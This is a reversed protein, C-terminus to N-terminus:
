QYFSRLDIGATKSTIYQITQADFHTQLKDSQSLVCCTNKDKWKENEDTLREAMKHFQELMITEYTLNLFSCIARLVTEPERILQDYVVFCHDPHGRFKMSVKMSKKWWRICDKISRKGNWQTPYRKTAFHLSAVVDKGERLMHIFKNATPGQNISSIYHLHRPTKELVWICSHNIKGPSAEQLTMRDLIELLKKCWTKHGYMKYPNYPSLNEFPSLGTYGHNELFATVIARSRSGHVKMRRLFPNVPMTKSFFHTEPFSVVQSHSAIMSQLLTTGSRPCGVLFARKINLKDGNM